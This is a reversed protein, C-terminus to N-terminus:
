VRMTYVSTNATSFSLSSGNTNLLSLLELLVIQSLM